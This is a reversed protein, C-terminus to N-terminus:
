PRIRWLDVMHPHMSEQKARCVRLSEEIGKWDGNLVMCGLQCRDSRAEDNIWDLGPAWKLLARAAEWQPEYLHSSGATLMLKGLSVNAPTPSLTFRNHNYLCAVKAAVMSFSFVDYPVGLWVDSSRMYVQCHLEDNRIIFQLAVTCPVDKSPKPNREWTTIVAQRTDRDRLLSRVVYDLQAVIRPGYAGSLTVGDDSFEAMRKNYATLPALQDDGDLIWLAEAAAFSYNLGRDKLLLVPHHMNVVIRQHLKEVTAMGRPKVVSGTSLVVDLLHRWAETMNYSKM